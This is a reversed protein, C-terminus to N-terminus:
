LVNESINGLVLLSKTVSHEVLVCDPASGVLLFGLSVKKVAMVNSLVCGEVM